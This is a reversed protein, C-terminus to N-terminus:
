TPTEELVVRNRLTGIGTISIEVTDGPEMQVMADAGLWLVDGPSMTIYKSIEVIFDVPSFVMGGTAFTAREEGDISTTTEADGLEFDTEIWPGMPKFTDGNKSRWFTRDANQWERASVDNGITWGFISAAAEDASCRRGPSRGIVAVLEPECEFRAGDFDHPKVIAEEHGILANNARYGIEARTPRAAQKYGAEFAHEIHGLYNLGACFFTSPLTPPLLATGALPLTEGTERPGAWPPGDVLVVTDGDVRGFGARTRCWRL